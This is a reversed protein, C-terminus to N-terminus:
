GKKTTESANKRYERPTCGCEERFRLSFYSPSQFGCMEGIKEVPESCFRLFQQAKAIRIKKLEEMVSMGRKAAYYHCLAFRDMHVVDCIMNLTIPEAYHRVLYNQVAAVTEDAPSSTEGFLRTVIAYGQASRSVPDSDGSAFRYLDAQAEELFAPVDFVYYEGVGFYTLLGEASRFTIWKTRFVDGKAEYSHVVGARIFIGQGANLVFSKGGIHFTGSGEKVWLFENFANGATQSTQFAPQKDFEGVTNLIFPLCSFAKKDIEAFM